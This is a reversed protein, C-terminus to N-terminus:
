KKGGLHYRRRVWKELDTGARLRIDPEVPDHGNYYPDDPGIQVTISSEQDYEGYEHLAIVQGLETALNPPAGCYLLARELVEQKEPMNITHEEVWWCNDQAGADSCPYVRVAEAYGYEIGELCYFSGGHEINGDGQYYWKKKM